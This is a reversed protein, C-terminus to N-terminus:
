FNTNETFSKKAYHCIEELLIDSFQCENATSKFWILKM